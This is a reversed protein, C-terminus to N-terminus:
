SKTCANMGLQKGLVNSRKNAANGQDLAAKAAKQDNKRAADGLAKIADVVKQNEGAWSDVTAQEDTPPKLKKTDDILRQALPVAKDAFAALAAFSRPQGLKNLDATYKTCLADAQKAFEQKSLRTGGSGGCAALLLGLLLLALLRRV